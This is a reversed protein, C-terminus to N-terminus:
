GLKSIIAEAMQQTNAAGKAIVDVRGPLKMMDYTRVKGESIVEAIANRIMKAKEQEDIHDLMMCASAIM